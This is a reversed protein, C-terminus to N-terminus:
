VQKDHKDRRKSNQCKCRDNAVYRQELKGCRNCPTEPTYWKEGNRLAIQRASSTGRSQVVPPNCHSCRGNDVRRIALTHCQPCPTDPAYWKEGKSLALQRPSLTDSKIHSPNCHSCRGTAVYRPSLTNCTSCPIDPVYWKEGKSLALQRPSPTDSRKINPHCTICKSDRTRRLSLTGCKPCPTESTYLYLGNDVAYQRSSEVKIIPLFGYREFLCIACKGNPRTLGVDHTRCKSIHLEVDPYTTKIFKYFYWEDPVQLDRENELFTKFKVYTTYRKSDIMIDGM